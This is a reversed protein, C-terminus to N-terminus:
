VAVPRRSRGRQRLDKIMSVGSYSFNVGWATITCGSSSWGTGLYSSWYAGLFGIESIDSGLRLGAAPFFVSNGNPGTVKYCEVGNQTTSVWSCKEILDKWETHTPMRWNRGCKVTAADDEQDLIKKVGSYCYKNSKDGDYWKYTDSDYVKKPETEGWAYYDGFEEPKTAGLNCSAWLVSLGLDVLKGEKILRSRCIEWLKVEICDEFDNEPVEYFITYQDQANETSIFTLKHRGKRLTISVDHGPTAICLETGYHLVKCELDTEIHYISEMHIQTQNNQAKHIKGTSIKLHLPYKTYMYEM